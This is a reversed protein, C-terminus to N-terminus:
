DALDRCVQKEQCKQSQLCRTSMKIACTRDDHFKFIVESDYIEIFVPGDGTDKLDKEKLNCKVLGETDDTGAMHFLAEKGLLDEVARDWGYATMSPDGVAHTRAHAAFDAITSLPGGILDGGAKSAAVHLALEPSDQLKDWLGGPVTSKVLCEDMGNTRWTLMWMDDYFSHTKTKTKKEDSTSQPEFANIKPGWDVPGWHLIALSPDLGKFRHLLAANQIEKSGKNKLRVGVDFGGFRELAECRM